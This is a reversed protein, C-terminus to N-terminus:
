GGYNFLLMFVMGIVFYVLGTVFICAHSSIKGKSHKRERYEAYNEPKKAGIIPIFVKLACKLAYGIGDFAGENSLFVLASVALFLFGSIAFADSLVRFKQLVDTQSFYDRIALVGFVLGTAIVICIGYYLLTKLFKNNEM